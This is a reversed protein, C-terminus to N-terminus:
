KVLEEMEKWLMNLEIKRLIGASEFARIFDYVANFASYKDYEENHEQASIRYEKQKSIETRVLQIAKKKTVIKM